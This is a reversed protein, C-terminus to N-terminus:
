SGLSWRVMVARGSCVSWHCGERFLQGIIANGSRHVLSTGGQVLPGIVLWGQVYLGIVARWPGVSWHCLERARTSPARYM